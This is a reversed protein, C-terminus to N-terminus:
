VQMQTIEKFTSVTQNVVTVAMQVSISAKSTAIMVDQIDAQGNVYQDILQNAHVESKTVNELAKVTGNFIDDFSNSSTFLDTSTGTNSAAPAAIAHDGPTIEENGILQALKLEIPDISEAM